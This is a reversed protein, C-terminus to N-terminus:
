RARRPTPPSPARPPPADKPGKFPKGDMDRVFPLFTMGDMYPQLVKPVEVGTPTQYNELLCCITRGCAALTSNLMHVYKKEREGMKKNGCRIEM